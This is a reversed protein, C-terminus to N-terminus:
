RAMLVLIMLPEGAFAILVTGIMGHGVRYGNDRTNVTNRSGGALEACRTKHIRARARPTSRRSAISPRCKTFEIKQRLNCLQLKAAM